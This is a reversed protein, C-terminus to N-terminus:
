GFSLGDPWKGRKPHWLNTIGDSRPAPTPPQEGPGWCAAFRHAHEAQVKARNLKGNDDKVHLVFAPCSGRKAFDEQSVTVPLVGNLNRERYATEYRHRKV